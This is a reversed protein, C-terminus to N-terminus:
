YYNQRNKTPQSSDVLLSLETPDTFAVTNQLGINGGNVGRTQSTLHAKPVQQFTAASKVSKITTMSSTRGNQVATHVSTYRNMKTKESLVM